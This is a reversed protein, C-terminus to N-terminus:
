VGPEIGEWAWARESLYEDLPRSTDWRHEFFTEVDVFGLAACCYVKGDARGAPGADVGAEPPALDDNSDDM